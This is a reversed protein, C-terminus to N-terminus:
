AKINQTLDEGDKQQIMTLIDAATKRVPIMKESEILKMPPGRHPMNRLVTRFNKLHDDIEKGFVERGNDFAHGLASDNYLHCIAEVFSSIEPGSAATWVRQQYAKSSLEKLAEQIHRKGIWAM